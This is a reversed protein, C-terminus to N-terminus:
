NKCKLPLVTLNHKGTKQTTVNYRANIIKAGNIPIEYAIGNICVSSRGTEDPGIHIATTSTIAPKLEPNSAIPAIPKSAALAEAQHKSDFYSKGAFWAQAVTALATAILAGNLWGQLVVKETTVVAKRNVYLKGDDGCEFVFDKNDDTSTSFLFNFKQKM